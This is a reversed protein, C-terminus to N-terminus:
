NSRQLRAVLRDRFRKLTSTIPPTLGSEPPPSQTYRYQAIASLGDQFRGPRVFPLLKLAVDRQQAAPVRWRNARWYGGGLTATLYTGTPEDVTAWLEATHGKTGTERVTAHGVTDLVGGVFSLPQFYVPTPITHPVPM